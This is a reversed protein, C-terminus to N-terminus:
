KLTFESEGIQNGEAYIIVKYTGPVFEESKDYFICIDIDKNEYILQRKASYVLTEGNVEFLNDASNTMLVDDPKIIRIFLDKPGAEIIANERVVFCTKIKEIKTAKTKDKSNKNLPHIEINKANLISAKEVQGSLVEKEDTLKQYKKESTHLKAKVELNEETLKQNLTNLSDIQVIYSRMIKRLTGMEKKYLNIKANSQAQISLLRQIKEQEQILLQNISDNDTKLSDYDVIIQILETELSDRTFELKEEKAAAENKVNFYEFVMYGAVCLLIVILVILFVPIKKKEESDYQDYRNFNNSKEM